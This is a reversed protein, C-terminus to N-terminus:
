GTALAEILAPSKLPRVLHLALWHGLLMASERRTPAALLTNQADRPSCTMLERLCSLTQATIEVCGSRGAGCAACLLSGTPAEFWCTAEVLLARCGHCASTSPTLGCGELVRLEFSRLFGATAPGSRLGDLSDRLLEFLDSSAADEVTLQDIVELLYSGYAFKIPDCLSGPAALLDCRDMFVLGATHRERFHVRVLTFPDLCNVFRRRSNRAGKAIGTLKGRAETLFTVIRDSEGFARTRLIIARQAQPPGLM